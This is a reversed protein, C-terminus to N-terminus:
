SDADQLEQEIEADWASLERSLNELALALKAVDEVGSSPGEGWYVLVNRAGVEVGLIGVPLTALWPALQALLRPFPDKDARQRPDFVWGELPGEAAGASALLRWSPLHRLKKPLTHQYAVADRVPERVVGGASVREEATPNTKPIHKLEVVLGAERAAQRLATLRRDKRSPLIWLVPGFAALLVVAIIIWTM